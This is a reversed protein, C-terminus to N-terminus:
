RRYGPTWLAARTALYVNGSSLPSSTSNITKTSAHLSLSKVSWVRAWGRLQLLTSAHLSSDPISKNQFTTLSIRSKWSDSCIDGTCHSNLLARECCPTVGYLSNCSANWFLLPTASCRNNKAFCVHSGGSGGLGGLGGSGGVFTRAALAGDSPRGNTSILLLTASIRLIRARPFCDLGQESFFTLFGPFVFPCSDWSEKWSPHDSESEARMLIAGLRRLKWSRSVLSSCNESVTGISSIFMNSYWACWTCYKCVLCSLSRTASFSGLSLSSIKSIKRAISEAFKTALVNSAPEPKRKRGTTNPHIQIEM